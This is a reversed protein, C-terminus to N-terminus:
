QPRRWGAVQISLGAASLAWLVRDACLLSGATGRPRSSNAALSLHRPRLRPAPAADNNDSITAAPTKRQAAAVAEGAINRDLLM